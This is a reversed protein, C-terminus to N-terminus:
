RSGGALMITKVNKDVEELESLFHRPEIGALVPKQRLTVTTVALSAARPPPRLWLSRGPISREAHVFSACGARLAIGSFLPCEGVAYEEGGARTVHQRVCEEFPIQVAPEIRFPNPGGGAVGAIVDEDDAVVSAHEVIVPKRVPRPVPRVGYAAGLLPPGSPRSLDDVDARVGEHRTAAGAFVFTQPHFLRLFEQEIRQSARAAVELFERRRRGDPTSPGTPVARVRAAPMAPWDDTAVLLNPVPVLSVSAKTSSARLMSGHPTNM